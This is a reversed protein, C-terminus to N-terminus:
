NWTLLAPLVLAAQHSLQHSSYPSKSPDSLPGVREVLRLVLVKLRARGSTLYGRTGVESHTAIRNMSAKAVHAADTCGCPLPAAPKSSFTISDLGGRGLIPGALHCGQTANIIIYMIQAPPAAAQFSLVGHQQPHPRRSFRLFRFRSKSDSSSSATVRGVLCARRGHELGGGRWRLWEQDPISFKAGKNQAM